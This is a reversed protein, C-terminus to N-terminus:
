MIEKKVDIDEFSDHSIREKEKTLFTVHGLFKISMKAVFTSVM